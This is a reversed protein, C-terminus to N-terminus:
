SNEAEPQNGQFCRQDNDVRQLVRDLADTERGSTLRAHMLSTLHLCLANLVDEIQENEMVLTNHSIPFHYERQTHMHAAGSCPSARSPLTARSKGVEPVNVTIVQRKESLCSVKYFMHECGFTRKDVSAFLTQM